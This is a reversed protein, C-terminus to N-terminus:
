ARLRDQKGSNWVIWVDEGFCRGGNGRRADIHWAMTREACLQVMFGFKDDNHALAPAPDGLRLGIVGDEAVGDGAVHRRAVQLELM